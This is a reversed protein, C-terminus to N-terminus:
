NLSYSMRKARKIEDDSMQNGLEDRRQMAELNGQGAAKNLWAYGLVLDRPVTRGAGYRLGLNIQAPAFGATAAKKFWVTALEDDREIGVGERYHVALNHQATPYGQEAALRYWHAAQKYDRPVGYGRRYMNAILSQAEAHGQEAEPLFERFATDFDKRKAAAVGAEFETSAFSATLLYGLGLLIVLWRLPWPQGHSNMTRM